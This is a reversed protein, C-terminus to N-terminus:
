LVARQWIGKVSPIEARAFGVMGGGVWIQRARRAPRSCQKAGAGWNKLFDPLFGLLVETSCRVKTLFFGGGGTYVVM